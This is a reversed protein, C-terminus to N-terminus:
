LRAEFAVVDLRQEGDWAGGKHLYIGPPGSRDGNTISIHADQPLCRLAEVLDAVTHVEQKYYAGFQEEDIRKNWREEKGNPRRIICGEDGDDKIVLAIFDSTASKLLEGPKLMTEETQSPTAGTGISCRM